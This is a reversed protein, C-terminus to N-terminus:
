RRRPVFSGGRYEMPDAATVVALRPGPEADPRPEPATVDPLVDQPVHLGLARAQQLVAREMRYGYQAAQIVAPAMEPPVEAAIRSLELESLAVELRADIARNTAARADAAYNALNRARKQEAMMALVAAGLKTRGLVSAVAYAGFVSIVVCLAIANADTM